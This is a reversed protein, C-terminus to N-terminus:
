QNCAYKVVCEYASQIHRAMNSQQTAQHLSQIHKTLNGQLIAQYNCHNCDYKVGEHDINIHHYLATITQNTQLLHRLRHRPSLLHLIM